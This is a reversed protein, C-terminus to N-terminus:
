SRGKRGEKGQREYHSRHHETAARLRERILEVDHQPTKIGRVSKKQFVHLVYVAHALRVTYVARYTGGPDNAVVELVQRDGFGSLPKADPHREGAQALELAFGVSDKVDDSLKILDRKSSGMWHLPRLQPGMDEAM